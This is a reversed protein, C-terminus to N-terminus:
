VKKKENQLFYRYKKKNQLFLRYKKEHEPLINFSTFKSKIIKLPSLNNYPDNIECTIDVNQKFKLNFKKWKQIINLELYRLNFLLYQMNKYNILFKVVLFLKKCTQPRDFM